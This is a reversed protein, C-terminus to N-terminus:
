EDDINANSLDLRRVEGLRGIHAMLDNDVRGKRLDIRNVTGILEIGIGRMWSPADTPAVLITGGAKRIAAFAARRQQAYRVLLGVGIAVCTFAVLLTRLSARFWRRQGMAATM